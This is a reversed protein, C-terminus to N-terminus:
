ELNNKLRFWFTSGANIESEVYLQQNHLSLFEHCLLLGLGSGKEGITGTTTVSSKVSFLNKITDEDMGIGKDRVTIETENGVIRSEFEITSNVDSFKIANSLLNRIISQFMFKDAFVTDALFKKRVTIEKQQLNNKFHALILDIEEVLNIKVPYYDKHGLQLKSWRLLNELLNLLNKSSTLIISGAEQIEEKTMDDINETLEASFGLLSTFPSRLDHSIVSFLRDKQYNLHKLKKTRKKVKEELLKNLNALAAEANKRKTINQYMVFIVFVLLMVITLSTFIVQRHLEFFTVPKFHIISNKPLQNESIDFEKLKNYDFHPQYVTKEKIELIDPPTGKAVKLAIEAIEKGHIEPNNMYGGFVGNGILIGGWMGFVPVTSHQTLIKFDDDYSFYENNRDKHIATLFVASKKDLKALKEPLENILYTNWNIFRVNKFEPLNNIKSLLESVGKFFATEDGLIIIEETEPFLQLILRFNKELEMGEMVGTFNHKRKLHDPSTYNLGGFVVPTGPFLKESFEYLFNFAHNDTTIILDPKEIKYKYQYSQFLVEKLESTLDFRRTDMFEISINETPIEKELEEKLSEVLFNTWKYQPHYSNIILIKKDIEQASLM